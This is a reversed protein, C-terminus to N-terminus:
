IARVMEIQRVMRRAGCRELFAAIGRDRDDINMIRLAKGARAAAANLLARGVGHRRHERAVALMPVDGNSLFLVAAGREDGLVVFPEPARRISAVENQWTPVMDCWSRIMDLPPCVIRDTRVPMIARGGGEYTWCQLRRTEVFGLQRYLAAARENSEIVELIYRKAPLTEISRQMLQRAIGRRRHSIVVGTGSNYAADADLCNFVFGVLRAGDFAGVALDPRYGRRIVLNRLYEVTYRAPVDYDSFADNFAEALVDYDIGALSRVKIM